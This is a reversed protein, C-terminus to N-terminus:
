KILICDGQARSGDAPECYKGKMQDCERATKELLQNEVCCWGRPESPGTGDLRVTM